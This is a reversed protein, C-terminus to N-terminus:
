MRFIGNRPEPFPHNLSMSIGMAVMNRTHVPDIIGDDWLRSTSYYPSAQQEYTDFIEQRLATLDREGNTERSGGGISTLVGAAQEAGMVSIRAAPYMFLLRPNYSRGSMAYNGAGFSGGALITFKPVSATAVAHVMKAGEKAIGRNEADRGVMFGTINHLFLLPIKRFNCLQIFHTAKQASEAYLIGQNALIGVPFGMMHAFGTVLSTGYGSKFEQFRSGDTM